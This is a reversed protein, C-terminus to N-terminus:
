PRKTFATGLRYLLLANLLHWLFHTGVPWAPCLDHDVTRLLLSVSFLVAGQIFAPAAPSGRARLLLALGILTAWAPLYAVSGNLWGRPLLVPLGLSLAQFAIFGILTAWGGFGLLRRLSAVLFVSIWLQIPLVDALAAWPRAVTHWALSGLGIALMLLPLAYLDVALLPQYGQRRLWRWLAVAALLFAINTVSNLPEALLGPGVRECYVSLGRSM